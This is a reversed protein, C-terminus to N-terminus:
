NQTSVKSSASADTPARAAAFAALVLEVRDNLDNRVFIHRLHTRVTGRSMGLTAAIRQDKFGLLILRVVDAERISLGLAGIASTWEADSLPFAQSDQLQEHRPRVRRASM